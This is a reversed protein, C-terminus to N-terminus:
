NRILEIRKLHRVFSHPSSCSKMTSESDRRGPKPLHLGLDMHRFPAPRGLLYGQVEDCGLQRLAELQEETEVGEATISTGLAKGLGVISDVIARARQDDPLACAISRDIKIKDFPFSQLYRLSSYGAGFDDLVIRIGTAKLEHLIVRNEHTSDLPTSETIELELQGPALGTRSLIDAIRPALEKQMQLPSVNVAIRLDPYPGFDRCAQQLAWEGIGAIMGSSEAIHIFEGPPLLGRVPHNWRLLAEFCRVQQTKLDLLPQYYNEFQGKSLAMGLEARLAHESRLRVAMAPEFIRLAGSESEKACWLAIEAEKFAESAHALDDSIAIGISVQFKLTRGVIPYASALSQQLRYAYGTLTDSSAEGLYLVAFEDNGLRAV